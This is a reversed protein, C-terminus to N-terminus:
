AVECYYSVVREAHATPNPHGLRNRYFDPHVEYEVAIRRVLRWWPRVLQGLHMETRFVKSENVSNARKAVLDDNVFQVVLLTDAYTTVHRLLRVVDYGNLYHLVYRLLVLDPRAPPVYTLADAVVDPGKAADTDVTTLNPFWERALGNGGGLDLVHGSRDVGSLLAPMADHYILRSTPDGWSGFAQGQDVDTM